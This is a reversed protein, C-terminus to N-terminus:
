KMEVLAQHIAQYEARSIIFGPKISTIVKAAQHATELSVGASFLLIDLRNLNRQLEVESPQYLYCQPYFPPESNVLTIAVEVGPKTLVTQPM